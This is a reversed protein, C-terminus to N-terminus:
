TPLRLRSKEAQGFLCVLVCSTNPPKWDVGNGDEHGDAGNTEAGRCTITYTRNWSGEGLLSFELRPQKGQGTNTDPQDRTEQGWIGLVRLITGSLTDSM